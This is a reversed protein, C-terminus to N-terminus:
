FGNQNGLLYFKAIKRIEDMTASSKIRNVRFSVVVINDKTYGLNNNVRDISARSDKDKGKAIGMGAGYTLPIGLVPCVEPFKIEDFILDFERGLKKASSKTKYFLDKKPNKRRYEQKHKYRKDKNKLFSERNKRSDCPKCM